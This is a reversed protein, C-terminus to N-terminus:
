RWYAGLLQHCVDCTKYDEVRECWQLLCDAHVHASTGRCACAQLLERGDEAPDLCFRCSMADLSYFSQQKDSRM